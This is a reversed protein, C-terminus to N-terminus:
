QAIRALFRPVDGAQLYALACSLAPDPAPHLAPCRAPDVRAQSTAAAAATEDEGRAALLEIDPAVGTRQVTPGAPRHYHSTTLKVAGKVEEGLTFTTQVTGKGFSRQGLVVARRHDQLAAAVLESASASRRDILVAMPLGALLESPDAKWTRHHGAARGRVTVIEGDALFLDAISVAERLLGGPNGRLDLVIAKPAHAATAEVIADRMATAVAGGFTSLQLVLVEGEMSWRLAQRRITERTISLTFEDPLGNRRVTIAVPTGPEGRMKAIADALPLGQMPLDDVRVILDGSLLGARAAPTGPMAAVVRVVGDGPAVELGLGGFSGRWSAREDGAARADLYRTYPDLTGLATNIAKNFLERPDASAAPADQVVKLAAAALTAPDVENAHSRAVRQLVTAFLSRYLDAEDGPRVAAAYAAQLAPFDDGAPPRAQAFAATAACALTAALAGSRLTPLLRRM